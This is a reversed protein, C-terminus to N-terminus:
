KKSVPQKPVSALISDYVIKAMDTTTTFVAKTFNAHADIQNTKLSTGGVEPAQSVLKVETEPNIGEKKLAGLLM